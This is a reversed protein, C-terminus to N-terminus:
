TGPSVPALVEFELEGIELISVERDDVLFTKQGIGGALGAGLDLWETIRGLRVKDDANSESGTYLVPLFAEGAAGDETEISVPTWLLDRLHKPQPVVIKRIREFPVWVYSDRLLVELIGATRDDSDRFSAFPHGKMRGRLPPRLSQVREHLAKAETAHGERLQNNADMTLAVHEPVESLFRPKLGHVFYRRRDAEARLLQKYIEVGIGVKDNKHGIVDLQQVARDYEGAFCLLEFLFTRLRADTPHHKIDQSLETIAASLHDQDLLEKAGM